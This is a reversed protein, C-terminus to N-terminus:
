APIFDVPAVRIRQWIPRMSEGAKPEGASVIGDIREKTGDTSANDVLLIDLQTNRDVKQERLAQLCEKLLDIRNYTVVVATIHQM